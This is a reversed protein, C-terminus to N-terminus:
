LGFSYSQWVWWVESTLRAELWHGSLHRNPVGTHIYMCVYMDGSLEHLYVGVAATRGTTPPSKLGGLEGVGVPRARDRCCKQKLAGGWTMWRKM